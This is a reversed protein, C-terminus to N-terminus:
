NNKCESVVFHLYKREWKVRKNKRGISSIITEKHHNYLLFYSSLKKRIRISIAGAKKSM